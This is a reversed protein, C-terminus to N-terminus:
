HLHVPNINKYFCYNILIKIYFTYLLKIFYFYVHILDIYYLSLETDNYILNYSTFNYFLFISNIILENNSYNYMINNKNNKNLMNIKFSHIKIKKFKKVWKNMNINLYYNSNIQVGLTNSNKIFKKFKYINYLNKSSKYTTNYLNIYFNKLIKNNKSKIKIKKLKFSYNIENIQLNKITNIV